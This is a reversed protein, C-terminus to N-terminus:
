WRLKRRYLIQLMCASALISAGYTLLVYLVNDNTCHVSYFLAAITGCSIASVWALREPFVSASQKLWLRWLVIAGAVSGLVISLFCSLPSMMSPYAESMLTTLSAQAAQTALGYIFVTAALSAFVRAVLPARMVPQSYSRIYFVMSLSLFVFVGTKWILTGNQLVTGFDSRVGQSGLLVVGVFLLIFAFCSWLRRASVPTVPKLDSVLETILDEKKM